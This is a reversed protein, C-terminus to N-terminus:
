SGVAPTPLAVVYKSSSRWRVSRRFCASVRSDITFVHGNLGYTVSGGVRGLTRPVDRGNGFRRALSTHAATPRPGAADPVGLIDVIRGSGGRSQKRREQALEYGGADADLAGRDGVRHSGAGPGHGRVRGGSREAPAVPNRAPLGPSYGDRHREVRDRGHEGPDTRGATRARVLAEILAFEEDARAYEERFEPDEMLRKKLDNLRTMTGGAEYAGQRDRAGTATDEAVKERVCASGRGATGDGDRLERQRNRGRSQGAAGLAQRRSAQRAPSSTGGSRREGGAAPM